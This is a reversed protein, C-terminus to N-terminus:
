EPRINADKALKTFKQLDSKMAEMFQEPTSGVGEVGIPALREKAVQPDRLIRNIENSLRDTVPKPTGAPVLAGIWTELAFGPSPVAEAVTPVNPFRPTRNRSAIALARLKGAQVNPVVSALSVVAFDIEGGLLAPMVSGSGKYPIHVMNTGTAHRLMEGALHPPTGVGASGYSLGKPQTRALALLEKMNKAPTNANVTVVFQSITLLSVADFDKIPDYPLKDFFSANIVHGSAAILLTYGDAPQRAVYETGINGGAGTRNEVVVPQGLAAPLYVSLVRALGDNTGGPAFPVVLKVPRTPWAQAPAQLSFAALSIAAAVTWAAKLYHRSNM